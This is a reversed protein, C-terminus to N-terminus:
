ASRELQARRRNGAATRLRRTADYELLQERWTEYQTRKHSPPLHRDMFPVVVDILDRFARVAFVVEDDYHPQRRRYWRVRGVGLFARYLECMEHDAAGLGVAFTFTPRPGKSGGDLLAHTFTGEAAVFGGLYEAVEIPEDGLM